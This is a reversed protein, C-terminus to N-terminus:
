LNMAWRKKGCDWIRYLGLSLALEYETNSMTGIAGRKILTAKQCSQKSLRKEQRTYSYDPGLEEELLFGMKEYVRGESWRNDSWSILKSYGNQKAYSVLAKLLKSSGGQVSIGSKFALRNLVFVTGQNQRHHESGTMVAVLDDKFYLGFAIDFRSTGQIHNQELFQTADTKDVIKLETKRAGVNLPNKNTVSMLYNKVQDKRDTWEDGFITILRIGKNNCVKMKNFHYNQIDKDLWKKRGRRLGNESHWYLGCYEIGLKISPIYIDVELPAIIQTCNKTMELGLDSLLLLVEKEPGSSGVSPKMHDCMNDLIGRQLALMYASSGNDQFSIRTSHKLAETALMEDTWYTRLKTMHSCVKDLIGKRRAAQYAGKGAIRFNNRTDHKLAEEQISVDDWYKLLEVMHPCIQDLIGREYAVQYATPNSKRFSSRSMHKLAEQHLSEFTWYTKITMHSCVRDLFGGRLAALYAGKSHRQFQSPTEYKLAEISVREETWYGNPKKKLKM